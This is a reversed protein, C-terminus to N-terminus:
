LFTLIFLYKLLMDKIRLKIGVEGSAIYTGNKSFAVCTVAKRSPSVIHRQSDNIVDYLVIM